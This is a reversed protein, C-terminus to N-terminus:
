RSMLYLPSREPAPSLQNTLSIGHNTSAIKMAPMPAASYQRLERGSFYWAM